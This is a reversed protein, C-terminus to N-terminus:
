FKYTAPVRGSHATDFREEYPVFKPRCARKRAQMRFENKTIQTIYAFVNGRADIRKWSRLFSILVGQVIDDDDSRNAGGMSKLAGRAVEEVASLLANDPVDGSRCRWLMKQLESNKVMGMNIKARAVRHRAKLISLFHIFNPYFM